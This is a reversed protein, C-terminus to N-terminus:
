PLPESAIPISVVRSAGGRVPGTGRKTLSSPWSGSLMGARRAQNGGPVWKASLVTMPSTM